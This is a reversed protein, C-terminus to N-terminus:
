FTQKLKRFEKMVKNRLTNFPAAIKNWELALSDDLLMSIYLRKTELFGYMEM